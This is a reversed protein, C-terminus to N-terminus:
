QMADTDGTESGGVMKREDKVPISVRGTLRYVKEMRRGVEGLVRRVLEQCVDGTRNRFKAVVQSRVQHAREHM